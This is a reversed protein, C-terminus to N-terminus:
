AQRQNCLPCRGGRHRVVLWLGVAFLGAAIINAWVNMHFQALSGM